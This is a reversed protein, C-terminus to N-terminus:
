VPKTNEVQGEKEEEENNDVIIESEFIATAPVDKHYSNSADDDNIMSTYHRIFLCKNICHSSSYCYSCSKPPADIHYSAYSFWAAM